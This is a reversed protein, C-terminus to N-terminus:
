ALINITHNSIMLMFQSIAEVVSEDFRMINVLIQTHLGHAELKSTSLTKCCSM